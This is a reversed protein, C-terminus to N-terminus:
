NQEQPSPQSGTVPCLGPEETAICASSSGEEESRRKPGLHQGRTAAEQRSTTCM